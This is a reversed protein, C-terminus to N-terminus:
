WIHSPGRRRSVKQNGQVAAGLRNGQRAEQQGDSSLDNQHIDRQIRSRRVAPFTIRNYFWNCSWKVAVPCCRQGVACVVCVKFALELLQIVPAKFKILLLASLLYERFDILQEGAEGGVDMEDSAEGRKEQLSVVFHDNIVEEILYITEM